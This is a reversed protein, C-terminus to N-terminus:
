NGLLAKRWYGASISAMYMFFIIAFLLFGRHFISNHKYVFPKTLWNYFSTVPRFKPEINKELWEFVIEDLYRKKYKIAM